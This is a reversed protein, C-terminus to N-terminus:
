EKNTEKLPPYAKRARYAIGSLMKGRQSKFCKMAKFMLGTAKFGVQTPFRWSRIGLGPRVVERQRSSRLSMDVRLTVTM